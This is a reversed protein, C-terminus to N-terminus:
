CLTTITIHQYPFAFPSILEMPSGLPWILEEVGYFRCSIGETLNATRAPCSMKITSAQRLSTPQFYSQRARVEDGPFSAAWQTCSM